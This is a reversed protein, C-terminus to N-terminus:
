ATYCRRVDDSRSAYVIAVFGSTHEHANPEIKAVSQPHQAPSRGEAGDDNQGKGQANAGIGGDKADNVRRQQPRQWIGLRVPERAYDCMESVVAFLSVLATLGAGGPFQHAIMSSIQVGRDVRIARATHIESGAPSRLENLLLAYARPEETDQSRM